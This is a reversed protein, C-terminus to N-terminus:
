RSLSAFIFVSFEIDETFMAETNIVLVKGLDTHMLRIEPLAKPQRAFANLRIIARNQVTGKKAVKSEQELM